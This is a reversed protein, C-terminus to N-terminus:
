EDRLTSSPDCRAARGAPILIAIVSVAFLLCAPIAYHSPDNYAFIAAVPKLAQGMVRAGGIALPAGVLLGILVPRISSRLVARYIDKKMAGLAIRIGIEKARKGVAFSVVGYLGIIALLVAIVGLLLIMVELRWFINAIRDVRARITEAQVNSGHLTKKLVDTINAAMADGNGTVRVFVTPPWSLNSPTWARYLVPHYEHDFLSSTNGSIGVIELTQGDPTRLTRGIVEGADLFERAFLQSVVVPCVAGKDCATDNRELARGRLISIGMTPFYDASVQLSAVPFPSKGPLQILLQEGDLSPQLGSALATSRVGPMAEIQRRLNDRFITRAEPTKAAPDFATTQVVQRIEFGPDAHVVQQHAHIFFSSGALLVLSIAVQTAVLIQRLSGRSARRTFFRRQGTLSGLLDVKLSELARALGALTGALLTSVALFAFVRWDPYLPLLDMQPKAIWLLLFSPLHYTLYVSASGALIALLLIETVLMRVLRTRSAGLALRVAIEPQRADARSLLLTTVNACSIVLVLLLVGLILGVLWVVQRNGPRHVDSGDTVVLRSIRGPHLLDQQHILSALEAAADARSFGHNLRGSIQLWRVEGPRGWQDGLDLDSTLTYPLWAQASNNGSGFPPVVGVVTVLHDNLHIPKGIISPNAAFRTRWLEESLVVVASSKTYDDPQLLRGLKAKKLGYVSFFNSSVLGAPNTEMADSDFNLDFRGCAVVEKLSRAKDHVALYDELTAESPNMPRTADMTFFPFM